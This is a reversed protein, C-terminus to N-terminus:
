LMAFMSICALWSIYVSILYYMKKLRNSAFSTNKEFELKNYKSLKPNKHVTIWSDNVSRLNRGFAILHEFLIFLLIRKSTVHFVCVRRLPKIWLFTKYM